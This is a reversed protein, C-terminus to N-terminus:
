FIQIKQGSKFFIPNQPKKKHIKMFKNQIYKKVKKSKNPKKLNSYKQSKKQDKPNKKFNRLNSSFTVVTVVPCWLHGLIPWFLM